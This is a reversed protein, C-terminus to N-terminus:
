KWLLATSATSVLRRQSDTRVFYHYQTGGDAIWRLRSRIPLVLELGPGGSANVDTQRDNSTYLVNTDLGIHGFRLRPTLYFPGLRCRGPRDAAATAEPSEIPPPQLRAAAAQPLLVASGVAALAMRRVNM